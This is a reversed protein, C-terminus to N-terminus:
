RAGADPDTFPVSAIALSLLVLAVVLGPVANGNLMWVTLGFLCGGELMALPVLTARFRAHSKATGTTREATGHLMSRVVFAAIALASGTAMVVTDLMPIPTEALGKGGNTQLMVGVVIAYMTMGFLLAFFVLRQQFFPLPPPEPAM